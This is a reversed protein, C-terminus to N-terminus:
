KQYVLGGNFGFWGVWLMGAGTIVMTMNHPPMPTKGFGKRPGVVM